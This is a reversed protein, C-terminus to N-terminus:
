RNPASAFLWTPVWPSAEAHCRAIPDSHRLVCRLADVAQEKRETHGLQDLVLAAPWVLPRLGRDAAIRLNGVLLEEAEDREGTAALAAGLVIASKVRHRISGFEVGLAARAPAIAAPANGAALEIEARLWSRRVRCRPSVDGTDLAVLRRAEGVRGLGVADAALGLLVDSRADAALGLQVDSRSGVTLGLPVDRWADAAPDLPVDRQVDAALGLPEKRRADAALGLRVDAPADAALALPVEARADAALDLRADARAAAALGPAGDPGADAAGAATLRHLGRADWSRAAAHGGVQRLHSARTAAALAALVPDPSRALPGLHTAAAAYHGRAGLAVAALWAAM